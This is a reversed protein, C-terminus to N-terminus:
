ILSIHSISQIPDYSVKDVRYEGANIVVYEGVIPTTIPNQVCLIMLGKIKYYDRDAVRGDEYKIHTITKM